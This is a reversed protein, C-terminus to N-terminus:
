RHSPPGRGGVCIWTEDLHDSTHGQGVEGEEGQRNVGEGVQGANGPPDRANGRHAGGGRRGKRELLGMGGGLHDM